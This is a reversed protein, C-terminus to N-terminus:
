HAAEGRQRNDTIPHDQTAPSIASELAPRRVESTQIVFGTDDLEGSARLLLAAYKNNLSRRAPIVSTLQPVLGDIEPRKGGFDPSESGGVAVRDIKFKFVSEFFILGYELFMLVSEGFKLVSEGFMLVSELFM